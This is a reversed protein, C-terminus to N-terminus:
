YSNSQEVRSGRPSRQAALLESSILWDAVLDAVAAYGSSNLHTDINWFIENVDFSERLPAAANYFPMDLRRALLELREGPYSGRELWAEKVPFRVVACGIGNSRALAYMRELDAEVQRWDSEHFGDAVYIEGVQVPKSFKLSRTVLTNWVARFAHSRMFLERGMRGLLQAERTLLYGGADVRVSDVGMYTDGIDNDVFGILILDPQFKLAYRELLLLELAPFYRPIGLNLVELKQLEAKQNLAAKLRAPFTETQAAGSGYVFSDGIVAIRFVGAPKKFPRSIDRFGHGNHRHEFSYEGPGYGGVVTSDPVPKWPLLADEQTFLTPKSLAPALGLLRVGLEILLLAFLVSGLLKFFLACRLLLNM